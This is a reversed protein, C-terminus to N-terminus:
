LVRINYKSGGEFYDPNRFAEKGLLDILYVMRTQLSGDEFLDIVRGGRLDDHCSMDYGIAGDLAMTIGCYEGQLTNLHDHGCFFGKVDGRQLAFSFLGSNFLTADLTERQNGICNTQEPNQHVYLFEPLMIHFAMIAPVKKGDQKEFEKSKNYYWAVQDPYPMSQNIILNKTHPLSVATNEPLNFAKYTDDHGRHSDLGWIRYAVRESKSSLVPIVFNGTGSIDEPGKEGMFGKIRCYAEFEKELPISKEHDHNGFVAAWPINRKLIPELFDEFLAKIDDLNEKNLCQDGGIMVFDPKTNKVLAEIGNVTKPNASDKAHIDSIMLVRFKGDDNFRLVPKKCNMDDGFIM